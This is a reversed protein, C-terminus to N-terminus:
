PFFSARGAPHMEAGTRDSCKSWLSRSARRRRRGPGALRAAVELVRIGKSTRGTQTLIVGLLHLADPDDPNGNLASRCIVEAEEQRGAGQLIWANNLVEPRPPPAVSGLPLGVRDEGAKSLTEAFININKTWVGGRPLPLPELAQVSYMRCLNPCRSSRAMTTAILISPPDYPLATGDCCRRESLITKPNVAKRGVRRSVQGRRLACIRADFYRVAKRHRGTAYVIAPTAGSSLPQCHALAHERVYGLELGHLRRQPGGCVFKAGRNFPNIRRQVLASAIRHSRCCQTLIMMKGSAVSATVACQGLTPPPM